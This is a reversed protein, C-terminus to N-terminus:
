SVHGFGLVAGQAARSSLQRGPLHVGRRLGRATDGAVAVPERDRRGHQTRVGRGGAGREGAM